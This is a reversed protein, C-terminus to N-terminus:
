IDYIYLMILNKQILFKTYHRTEILNFLDNLLIIMKYIYNNINYSKEM